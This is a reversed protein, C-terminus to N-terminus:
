SLTVRPDIWAYMLDVLLNVSVYTLAVSLVVGQIVPIDRAFFADLFLAGMGPREFIKEVVVTGALLAGLQAAAVTVIPFLANRLAHRRLVRGRSLGRARAAQVFPRSLADLTAARTQRTLSAALATGLTVTPLILTAWGIDGPLPLWRLWVGFVLILIPGLWINPIALGAVALASAARDWRSGHRSAAFVGLPIALTLALLLATLALTLTPALVEGLMDSVRREHRYSHGLSGGLVDGVFLSYQDVLSDDLHLRERMRARDGERANDGLITDVPDGPIARVMLFVLTVVGVVTLLARLARTVLYRKM